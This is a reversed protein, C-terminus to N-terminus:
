CLALALGIQAAAAAGLRCFRFQGKFIAGVQGKIQRRFRGITKAAAAKTETAAARDAKAAALGFLITRQDFSATLRGFADLHNVFGTLRQFDVLALRVFDVGFQVVGLSSFRTKGGVKDFRQRRDSPIRIRDGGCRRRSRKGAATTTSDRWGRLCWPYKRQHHEAAENSQPSAPHLRCDM